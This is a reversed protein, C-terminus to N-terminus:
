ADTNMRLFCLRLLYHVWDDFSAVMAAVSPATRKTPGPSPHTVDIGIVMTNKYIRTQDRLRHNNGGLKLNIKLAVNAYYSDNHLPTKYLKNNQGVLCVTDIGFEIDGLRKVMKYTNADKDPLVVVLIHINKKQCDEFTKKLGVEDGRYLTEDLTDLEVEAGLTQRVNKRFSPFCADFEKHRNREDVICRIGLRISKESRLVKQNRVNWRSKDNIQPVNCQPNYEVIPKALVRGQVTIM